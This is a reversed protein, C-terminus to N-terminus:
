SNGNCFMASLHFFTYLARTSHYQCAFVSTSPHFGTGTGSRGGFIKCPGVQFQVRVEATLPRRNVVPAKMAHGQLAVLSAIYRYHGQLAVLSAIYWYNLLSSSEGLLEQLPSAIVVVYESVTNTHTRTVETIWCPLRMRRTVNDDTIQKATGYKEM